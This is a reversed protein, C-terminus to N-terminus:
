VWPRRAANPKPRLALALIKGQITAPFVSSSASITAATLACAPMTTNVYAVKSSAILQSIM